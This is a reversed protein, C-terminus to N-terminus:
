VILGAAKVASLYTRSVPVLTGNELELVPKGNQRLARRVANLAVWHSRHVQLGAIPATERIADSLRMLVLSTGKDTTVDVYHDSVAIHMLRGRQPLPLRNLLAPHATEVVSPSAANTETGQLLAGMLTVAMSILTCYIVLTAVDIVAIHPGFIGVNFLAVMLGLMPGAAAGALLAALWHVMKPKLIVEVFGAIFTGALATTLVVAIWYALRPLLSIAEFTGFPGVLGVVLGLMGLLAWSRGNTFLARMERLASHLPTVNV